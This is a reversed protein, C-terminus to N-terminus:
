SLAIDDALFKNKKKLTKAALPDASAYGNIQSAQGFVADGHSAENFAFVNETIAATSSNLYIAGGNGSAENGLFVSETVTLTPEM